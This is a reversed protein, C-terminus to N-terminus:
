AALEPAFAYNPWPGSARLRLAPTSPLLALEARYRALDSDAVLHYATGLLGPAGGRRLREARVYPQLRQQEAAVEPMAHEVALEARRRALYRTGPGGGVAGIGEIPMPPEPASEGFWRLTMQSCGRVLALAEVFAAHRPGVAELLAARDAFMQGFRAPLFAEAQAALGRVALDHARLAEGAIAPAADRVEIVIALRRASGIEGTETPRRASPYEVIDSELNPLRPPADPSFWGLGFVTIM